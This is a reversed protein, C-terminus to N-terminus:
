QALHSTYLGERHLLAGQGDSGAPLADYEDFIRAKHVRWSLRSRVSDPGPPRTPSKWRRMM